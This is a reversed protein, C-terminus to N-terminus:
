SQVLEQFMTQRESQIDESIVSITSNALVMEESPLIGVKDTHTCDCNQMKCEANQMLEESQVRCEASM